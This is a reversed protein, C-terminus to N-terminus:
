REWFACEAAGIMARRVSAARPLRAAAPAITQELDHSLSPFSLIRSLVMGHEGAIQAAAWAPSSVAVIFPLLRGHRGAAAIWYEPGPADPDTIRLPPMM